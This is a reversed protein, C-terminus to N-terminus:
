KESAIAMRIEDLTLRSVDRKNRLNRLIGRDVSGRAVLDFYTVTGTTGIRHIRDESQLRTIFNFDNSFYIATRCAGQLNLGTGGAAPNSVFFRSQGSMFKEVALKRNAPSTDGFYSVACGKGFEAELADMLTPVNATFRSWIIVPGSVQRAIELTERVREQGLIKVGEDTPVSGCVIQQLRLLAVAASPVDLVSGDEFKTMYESKLEKYHQKTEPAMEYERVVYIKPPLDLCEDKTLRASHPAVLSYFEETNKQGVVDRGEFGGFVCFRAKFAAMYKFGLINIDLFNFQSFMDVINKGLPTGTAIRRYTSFAKLKELAKSRASSATKFGHSEDVAIMNRERHLYLFRCAVKFGLDTKIADTNMALFVLKGPPALDADSISKKNYVIGSWPIRADIHEPLQEEIWQLHVGKPAIILAGTLKRSLYLLAITAILITTKGLGMELFLAYVRRQWSLALIEKQHKYFERGPRYDLTIPEVITHQTALNELEEQAALEGSNDSWEIEYDMGKLIRVNSATALIKVTRTGDWSKRGALANISRIFPFPFPGTLTAYDGSVIAKIM